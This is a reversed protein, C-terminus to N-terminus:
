GEPGKPSKLLSIGKKAVQPTPQFSNGFKDLSKRMSEASSPLPMTSSQVSQNQGHLSDNSKSTGGGPAPGDRENGDTSITRNRLEDLLSQKEPVNASSRIDRDSGHPNPVLRQVHRNDQQAKSLQEELSPPHFMKTM